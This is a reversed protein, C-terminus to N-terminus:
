KFSTSDWRKETQIGDQWQILNCSCYYESRIRKSINESGAHKLLVDIIENFMQGMKRNLEATNMADMRLADPIVLEIRNLRKQISGYGTDRHRQM